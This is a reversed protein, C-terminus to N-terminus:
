SRCFKDIFMGSFILDKDNTKFNDDNSYRYYLNSESVLYHYSFFSNNNPDATTTAVAVGNEIILMGIRHLHQGTKMQIGNKWKVGNEALFKVIPLINTCHDIPTGNILCTDGGATLPSLIVCNRFDIHQTKQSEIEAIIENLDHKRDSKSWYSQITGGYGLYGCQRLRNYDSLRM